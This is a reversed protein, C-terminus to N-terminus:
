PQITIDLANSASVGTAPCPAPSSPGLWMFQTRFQASATGLPLALVFDGLALDDDNLLGLVEKAAAVAFELRMNSEMSGSTDIVLCVHM